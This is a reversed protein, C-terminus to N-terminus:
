NTMRLNGEVFHHKLYSYIQNIRTEWHQMNINFSLPLAHSDHNSAFIGISPLQQNSTMQLIQSLRRRLPIKQSKMAPDWCM